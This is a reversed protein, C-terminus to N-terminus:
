LEVVTARKGTSLVCFVCCVLKQATCVKRERRDCQPKQWKNDMISFYIILLIYGYKYVFVFILGQM